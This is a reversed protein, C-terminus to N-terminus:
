DEDDIYLNKWARDVLDVSLKPERGEYACMALSQDILFPAHYAAYGKKTTPYLDRLLHTLVQEDPKVGYHKCTRAFIKIFDDRSPRDVKIKYYVRRLAAGDFLEAPAFNTSFIVLTDFPVEFKQGSQLSLLDFGKEMPVIWRNILAMPPQVQRGLDDVIFVGGTAKLQLPAQYTRSVPNFNLDLMDLTLEGGTMVTPRKCRIFRQDHELGALRLGSGEGAAGDMRRHIVPDYVSIIQGAVELCFPVLIMDGLADRIGNSISSKGNGPPGYLLISRGSNVAPGLQDLLGDPLVLDGMSKVLMDRTITADRISQARALRGYEALPVPFPGFYESQALADLARAKGSETLGYRLESRVSAGRVGLTEILGQGKAEELLEEVVPPTVKLADAIDSPNRLSMRFMTKILIDRQLIPNLGIESVRMPPRPVYRLNLMDDM